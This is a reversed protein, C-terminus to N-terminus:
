LVVAEKTFICSRTLSDQPLFISHVGWTINVVQSEDHATYKKCLPLICHKSYHMHHSWSICLSLTIVQLLLSKYIYLDTSSIFHFWSKNTSEFKYLSLAWIELWRQSTLTEWYVTPMSQGRFKIVQNFSIM